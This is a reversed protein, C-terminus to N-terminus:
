FSYDFRVTFFRVPPQTNFESQSFNQGGGGEVGEPDIGTYDTWTALNRGAATIRLGDLRPVRSTVYEPMDISVSLERWKWFDAKEAYLYASGLYRDAIHAAQEHLSADPNGVASCGRTSYVGCRFNETDNGTYHGGRGEFLTSVTIWDLIRLDAFVTRQWKPLSPGIFEPDPGVTVEANTLKGDGNADNYTVPRQFHAGASFGEKHRQLGRNFIIDGVGEGLALIENDLTTNTVGVRLGLNERRLVEANILTETGRNRIKGLNDFVTATLGLSPALNRRILADKSEKNYFTFEVGLRDQFFGADVGFEVETTREPKLLTNGTVSLAVGPADGGATAVTTPDYLTVADRMGPRLGSTGYATRLRLNSMWDVEPFWEEEAVVWSLSASPYYVLGFDAGFASNDDGRLGVAVFMKDRWALEQQVYAGVTRIEFYDEDINFLAATTGCSATGPVLSSGYCYTNRQQNQDYSVGVTTNSVTEDTLQFTSVGSFQATYLYRLERESNRFGKTYSEAIPLKGPQLTNFDFNSTLDLGVNGSVTLWSFPRYRLNSAMTFRDVDQYSVLNELEYLNFGWNYNDDNPVGEPFEGPVPPIYYARGILGNIIPSFISNDNSNLGLNSQTYGFSVAIDVTESLAADLNARVNYKDQTNYYIVGEEAEVQGSVFYRVQENGGRVSLGYRSRNGTQFPTTRPDRLTNFRLTGDQTCTGAAASRNPCSPYAATNLFGTSLFMPQSSDKISYSEWNDPYEAIDEITGAEAWASWQTTGPRGRKTTILIVGNAAATGYLASAAPGKVVEISEIDSPNIDNMRSVQVGGVGLAGGIDSNIQVGDMFVLPENSLSLSNAGRIRIRQSSGATGSVAQMTVGASRGGLVDGLTSIPALNIKEVELQAVNTGLERARQERGTPTTVVLAELAIATPELRFEVSGTQGATVNVAQVQQAYGIIVARVERAGAPVRLILFRGNENTLSGLNTGVVVMQVDPMPQGTQANVVLGTITGTEQAAASTVGVALALIMAALLFPVRFYRM